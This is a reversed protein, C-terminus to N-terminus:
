QRRETLIVLYEENELCTEYAAASLASIDEARIVAYSGPWVEALQGADVSVVVKDMLRTQLDYAMKDRECIYVTDGAQTHDNLWAFMETYRATYDNEGRICTRMCHLATTSFLFVLVLCALCRELGYPLRIRLLGGFVAAGALAIVACKGVGFEGLWHFIHIGTASVVNLYKDQPTGIRNIMLVTLLLCVAATGLWIKFRGKTEELFMGMGFLLLIGMFCENYRGYFLTDIRTKGGAQTLPAAYFFVATVAVSLLVSVLPFLYRCVAEREKLSRCLRWVGFAAGIGFLLYTACLCEWVQGMVNLFFQLFGNPTFLNLLKDMQVGGTNAQGMKVTFGLPELVPSNEVMGVLYTKMFGNLAFMGGFALLCLVATKGHLRRMFLLLLVCLFVAAVVSIMRNHVMYAYGATVGLLLGKWWTEREELSIVEYFILWVLLTVLTECMTIYSYFIYSTFSTATFALMGRLFPNLSPFLRRSVACALGYVFLCMVVNLLVAMKYAAAMQSSLLLAPLLLFSYGFGYWGVGDMVGAWTYGAMHAAHSWYGLEDAYVFPGNGKTIYFLRLVLTGLCFFAFILYEKKNQIMNAWMCNNYKKIRSFDIYEGAFHM